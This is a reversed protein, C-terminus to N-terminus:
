PQRKYVDLHTYSAAEKTHGAKVYSLVKRNFLKEQKDLTRYGSCVIPSLGQDKMDGIMAM